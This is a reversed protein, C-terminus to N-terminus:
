HKPDSLVGLRDSDPGTLSLWVYGTKGAYVHIFICIRSLQKHEDQRIVMQNPTRTIGLHVHLSLLFLILVVCYVRVIKNRSWTFALKSQHEYALKQFITPPIYKRIYVKGYHSLSKMIIYKYSSDADHWNVKHTTVTRPFFM